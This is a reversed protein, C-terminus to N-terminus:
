EYRLYDAAKAKAKMQEKVSPLVTAASPKPELKLEVFGSRSAARLEDAGDGDKDLKHNERLNLHRPKLTSSTIALALSLAGENGISNDQLHLKMLQAPLGAGVLAVVGKDGIRNNQLFLDRLSVLVTRSDLAGGAALAIIGDDRLDNDQLNLTLLNGLGDGYSGECRVRAAALLALGITAGDAAGLRYNTWIVERAAAVSEDTTNMRAWLLKLRERESLGDGASRAPVGGVSSFSLDIRKCARPIALCTPKEAEDLPVAEDDFAIAVLTTPDLPAPDHPSAHKKNYASAFPAVVADSFPMRLWKTALEIKLETEGCAVRCTRTTTLAEKSDFFLDVHKVDPPLIKNAAQTPDVWQGGDLQMGAFGAEDVHDYDPRKQNHSKVFPGIVSTMLARSQWKQDLTIKLSLGGHRVSFKM